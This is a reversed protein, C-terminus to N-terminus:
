TSARLIVAVAEPDVPKVLHDNMGAALTQRRKEEHSYATLAIIRVDGGWPRRRIERTAELGDLNPMAIDMLIVDPRFIEAVDVAQRGDAATRVTHGDAELLLALSDAGDVNDDAILIRM